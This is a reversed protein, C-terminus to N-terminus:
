VSSPGESELEGLEGILDRDGIQGLTELEQHLVRWAPEGGECTQGCHTRSVFGDYNDFRQPDTKASFLTLRPKYDPGSVVSLPHLWCTAPKYHWPHLGRNTALVQLSCRADPLLFVCNTEPFHDPYDPVKGRMPAVKVATKPGAAVDRWKGYVVTQKPLEAGIAKLETSASDSLARIVRAEESSLYVGDHCCTGGCSNLDCRRLPRQLAKGDLTMGRVTEALFERTEPFAAIAHSM